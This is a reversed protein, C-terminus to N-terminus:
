QGGESEAGVLTIQLSAAVTNGAETEGQAEGETPAKSSSSQENAMTVAVSEVMPQARLTDALKGLEDLTIGKVNVVLTGDSTSAATVTARPQVVTGVMDMVSLADIAGETSIGTYSRYEELVSDYNELQKQVAELEQQAAALEANKHNVQEFVDFIAFKAFAAGLLAVVALALLYKWVGRTKSERVLLNMGRKTPLATSAAPAAGIPKNLDLAM